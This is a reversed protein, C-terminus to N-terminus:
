SSLCYTCINDYRTSPVSQYHFLLVTVFQTFLLIYISSTIAAHHAKTSCVDVHAERIWTQISTLTDWNEVVVYAYASRTVAALSAVVTLRNEDNDDEDALWGEYRCLRM